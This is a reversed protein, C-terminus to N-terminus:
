LSCPYQVIHRSSISEGDLLRDRTAVHKSYKANFHHHYGSQIRVIDLRIYCHWNDSGIGNSYWGHKWPGEGTIAHFDWM